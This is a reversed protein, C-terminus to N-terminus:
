LVVILGLLKDRLLTQTPEVAIRMDLGQLSHLEVKVVLALEHKVFVGVVVFLNVGVSIM